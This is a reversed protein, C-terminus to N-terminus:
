DKGPSNIGVVKLRGENEAKIYACPLAVDEEALPNKGVELWIARALETCVFANNQTFKLEDPRIPRFWGEKVLQKCWCWILDLPLRFFIGYDYKRRGFKSCYKAAKKGLIDTEPDTLKFVVYYLDKYWSLRGIACGKGISEIIEYDNELELRSRIVLFHYLTTQPTFIKSACFALLNGRVGVIDGPLYSSIDRDM